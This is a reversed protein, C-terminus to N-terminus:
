HDLVERIKISLSEISYPKHIFNVGAQLTGSHVIHNDTYGSTFLIKTKPWITKLKDALEKGGMEPMIVDSIVLDMPPHGNRFLNLAEVGNCADYVKYGLQQLARLTFNRVEDNDEVFLISERGQQIVMKTDAKVHEDSIEGSVCPWYIKITTGSGVESYVYISGCNQKVIGYVTSLGLGTGKTKDKTTFFPEFIKEKIVGDIGIGTDSVAICLHEGKMSGPHKAVFIDDLYFVNTEITIKKGSAFETKQNIADRANVVLNVLIQEIQGPDAKILGANKQLHIDLRIDEGILRRLMKDLDKILTNINLTKPEIMQKRGFALLQRVLTSAKKGAKLIGTIEKFLTNKPEMKMLALEAYGNIATLINNFDHAIGGALQGIAEMKQGQRLQEEIKKHETIESAVGVIAMPKKNDDYVVAKSLLIPFISGDKRKNYLERPWSQKAATSGASEPASEIHEMPRIFDIPKGIVEDFQYGYTKCFADNVYIIKEQLDTISICEQVSKVAQVLMNIEREIQKKKTIDRIIAWLGTYRGNHDKILYMQVEVPITKGGAGLIEKEYIDTYGNKLLQERIIQAETEQWRPPTLDRFNKGVLGDTSLEILNRFAPNYELINGELDLLILGDRISNNLERLRSESKKVAEQALIQESVDWLYIHVGQTGAVSDEDRVATIDAEVYITEGDKRLGRFTIRSPIMNGEMRRQQYTSVFERDDPHTLTAITHQAMEELGYGFIEAFRHNFYKFRNQNDCLLIAIDTKEVLDRYREESEVLIKEIRKRETIDRMVGQVGTIRGKQYVPVANIEMPIYNGSKAIQNIHLDKIVQGKLVKRLASLVKSIEARPTTYSIYKGVIEEVSYGFLETIRPSVYEIYGSKKLRFVLDASTEVFGRFKEESERLADESLKRENIERRLEMNIDMLESTREAVLAELQNRLQRSEEESKKKDSIDRALGLLLTKGAIKVPRSRVELTITLGDKRRFNFEEPGISKGAANQALLFLAKPIQDAPLLKLKIFNKGVLEARSYGIVEAAVSNCDIFTGKLDYLYYFDPAFEFLMQLKKESLRLDKLESAQQAVIQELESIKKRLLKDQYPPKLIEKREL